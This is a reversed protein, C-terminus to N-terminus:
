ICSESSCPVKLLLRAFLYGFQGSEQRVKYALNDEKSSM